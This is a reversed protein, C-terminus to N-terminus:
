KSSALSRSIARGLRYPVAVIAWALAALALVSVIALVALALYPVTLFVLTGFVIVVPTVAYWHM